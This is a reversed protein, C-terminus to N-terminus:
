YFLYLRVNRCSCNVEFYLNLINLCLELLNNVDDDTMKKEKGPQKSQLRRCDNYLNRKSNFKKFAAYLVKEPYQRNCSLCAETYIFFNENRSLTPLFSSNIM